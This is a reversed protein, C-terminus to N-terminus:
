FVRSSFPRLSPIQPLQRLLRPVRPLCLRIPNNQHPLFRAVTLTPSEGAASPVTPAFVATDSGECCDGSSFTRDPGDV